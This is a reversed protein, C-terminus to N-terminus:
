FSLVRARRLRLTPRRANLAMDEVHWQREKPDSKPSGANQDHPVQLRSNQTCLQKSNEPDSIRWIAWPCITVEYYFVTPGFDLDSAGQLVTVCLCMDCILQLQLRDWKFLLTSSWMQQLTLMWKSTVHECSVTTFVLKGSFWPELWLEPTPMFQARCLNWCGVYSSWPLSQIEGATPCLPPQKVACHYQAFGCRRASCEFLSLLHNWLYEYTLCNCLFHPTGVEWKAHSKKINVRGRVAVPKGLPECGYYIGLVYPNNM